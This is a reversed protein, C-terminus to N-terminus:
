AIAGVRRRLAFMGGFGVIMLVWTAPEPITSAFGAILDKYQADTPDELYETVAVVTNTATNYEWTFGGDFSELSGNANLSVLWTTFMINGPNDSFSLTDATTNASLALAPDVYMAGEPPNTMDYYWPLNDAWQDSYGGPPPDVYPATLFMGAANKAKGNDSTVIQYWNFQTEDCAAAAAALTPPDGTTSTFGGSIGKGAGLANVTITGGTEGGCSVDITLASAVTASLALTAIAVPAALFLGFIGIKRSM